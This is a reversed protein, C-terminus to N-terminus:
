FSFISSPIEESMKVAYWNLNGNKQYNLHLSIAGQLIQNTQFSLLIRKVNNILLLLLYVMGPTFPMQINTYRPIDFGETQWFASFIFM